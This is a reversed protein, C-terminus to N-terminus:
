DSGLDTEVSKVALEFEAGREYWAEYCHGEGSSAPPVLDFLTNLERDHDNTLGRQARKLVRKCVIEKQSKRTKQRDLRRQCRVYWM